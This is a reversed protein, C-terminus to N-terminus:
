TTRGGSGAPVSGETGTAASTPPVGALSPRGTGALARPGFLGLGLLLLTPVGLGLTAWAAVRRVRDGPLEVRALSVGALTVGAAVAFLSCVALVSGSASPRTGVPLLLGTGLAGFLGVAVLYGVGLGSRSRRQGTTDSPDYLRVAEIIVVSEVRRPATGSSSAGAPIQVRTAVM